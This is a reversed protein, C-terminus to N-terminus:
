TTTPLASPSVPSPSTRAESQWGASRTSHAKTCSTATLGCCRSATRAALSRTPRGCRTLFPENKTWPGAASEREAEENQITSLILYLQTPTRPRRPMHMFTIARRDCEGCPLSADLHAAAVHLM